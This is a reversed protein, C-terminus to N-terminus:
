CPQLFIAPLGVLLMTAAFLGNLLLGSLYMFDEPGEFWPAPERLKDRLSHERRFAKWGRYSTRAFLGTIILALLTIVIVLFSLGNMGPLGFNWGAQCATEVLLYNLLFHVSWIVPGALWQIWLMRSSTQRHSPAVNSM